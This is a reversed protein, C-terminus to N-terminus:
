KGSDETNYYENYILRLQKMHGIITQPSCTCPMSFRVSYVHSRIKQLEKMIPAAPSELGEWNSFFDHLTQIQTETPCRQVKLKSKSNLLERRKDCGCDEGAIFKVAAKIGTDETFQEIIDGKGQQLTREWATVQQRSVGLKKGIETNSLETTKLLELAEAKM